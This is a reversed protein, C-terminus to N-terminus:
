VVGKRDREDYMTLLVGEIALRPNLAARVRDITSLLEAIGELAFYEGNLPILVADAAVRRRRM